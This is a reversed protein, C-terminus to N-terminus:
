QTDKDFKGFGRNTLQHLWESVPQLPPDILAARSSIELVRNNALPLRFVTKSVKDQLYLRIARADSAQLASDRPCLATRGHKCAATKPFVAAVAAAAGM